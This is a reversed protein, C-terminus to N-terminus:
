NASWRFSVITPCCTPTTNGASLYWWERSTTSWWHHQEHKTLVENRISLCPIAMAKWCSFRMDLSGKGFSQKPIYGNANKIPMQLALTNRCLRLNSQQACSAIYGESCRNSSTSLFALKWSMWHKQFLSHNRRGCIGPLSAQWHTGQRPQFLFVCDVCPIESSVAGM